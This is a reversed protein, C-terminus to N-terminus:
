SRNGAQEALKDRLIQRARFVRSRVAAPSIGLTTAVERPSLEEVTSLILPARLKKPLAAIFRKVLANVQSAEIADGASSEASAVEALPKEPDDLSVERKHRAMRSREVAVRWAIRALWGKHDEVAALKSGYRLARFFTEQTADEADHHGRLVAYAIRYVLLSHQHVLDELLEDRSRDPSREATAIGSLIAEGAFVPTAGIL